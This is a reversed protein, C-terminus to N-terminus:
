SRRDDLHLVINRLADVCAIAGRPVVVTTTGAEVIAPGALTHGHTLRRYDYITTEEWGLRSDLFVPRSGRVAVAADHDTTEAVSPLQPKFAVRGIGFVRHNIVQYGADRYGTGVGFLSAYLEEFDGVVKEMDAEDFDGGRVPTPVEFMQATYRLDLERRMEIETFPIGQAQLREHLGRELEAFGRHVRAADFPYAAPDSLEASLVVDSTTLGYASFANTDGLPVYIEKIGLDAGYAFCHAPGGGGFAYLVFERPDHGQGVVVSRVLDATQANQIEFIAAAAEEVGLGLPEAVHKHVADRARGVDLKRAGEAFTDPDLIGLLLNADTVTPELGELGYCAPGPRAGASRPGVRLNDGDLWAIAGGGSGISTVKMMPTSITFQNLTTTNAFVPKGDVVLGVLFTTGGIDSTIINRHGLKRGLNRAGIVGGTLVSGITTIAHRPADQASVSGGSGQMVMLPGRLGRAALEGQLPALYDRLTPGVQANMVTTVTRTYERIKPAVESSLCVYTGPSEQEILKRLQQEHEPNVFSWLLSVAIADVGEAVLERIATRAEEENLPVVVAGQYDIREAVEKVMRKPILPPPKRTDAVNQIEHPSLGAYRGEVNMIYISDRHGMTTLLGVRAVNGTVLANLAATTGHCIFDVDALTQERPRSLKRGLEDVAHLLGDAFNPPTSPVKATTVNGKDDGLFADTFTGGIDIGLISAV